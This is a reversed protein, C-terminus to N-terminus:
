MTVIPTEFFFIGRVRTGIKAAYIKATQDKRELGPPAMSLLHLNARKMM